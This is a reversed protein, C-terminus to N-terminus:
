RKKNTWNFGQRNYLTPVVPTDITLPPFYIPILTSDRTMRAGIEAHVWPSNVSNTTVLVIAVPCNVIAHKLENPWLTGVNINNKAVFSTINLGKELTEQISHALLSDESSHSIFLDYQM